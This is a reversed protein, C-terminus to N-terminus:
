AARAVERRDPDSLAGKLIKRARFLRSMVTGVPVALEEAAERYSHERLDVLEVVTRFKSPLAGLAVHMENTVLTLPVPSTVGSTLNPDNAFRALAKRERSRSRMKSIFVSDLIQFIWARANTGREFTHEFRLARLVTEQVLDEADARSRCLRLARASLAPVLTRVASRIESSGPIPAAFAAQM